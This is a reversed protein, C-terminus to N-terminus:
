GACCRQPPRPSCPVQRPPRRFRRWAARIISFRQRRAPSGWTTEGVGKMMVIQQNSTSKGSAKMISELLAGLILVPLHTYSFPKTLGRKAVRYNYVSTVWVLPALLHTHKMEKFGFKELYKRLSQYSFLNLHRPTHYGGWLNQFWKRDYGDVNPTSVTLLGDPKLARNIKKLCDSVNWLHEVLQNMIVVDWSNSDVEVDEFPAEILEIGGATLLARQSKSFQLDIGIVRFEPYYKKVTLLTSGDGCGIECVVSKQSLRNLISNLRNKVVRQKIWELIHMRADAEKEAVAYYNGPYILRASEIAPRPNLYIHVCDCCSVFNFEDSCTRYEYDKTCAHLQSRDSGCLMCSTEELTITSNEPM